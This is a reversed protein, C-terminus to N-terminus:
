LTPLESSTGIAIHPDGSPSMWALVADLEGAPLAVCGATYGSTTDDHFFVGSGIPNSTPPPNFNIVAFHQYAVTETWLAESDGGFPPTTACQVHVFQNYQATGPQEDWWDGCVLHHYAYAPNAAATSVGYMTSEFGYLGTPTSGDGESRHDELDAGTSPNYGVEARFPQAPQGPLTAPSWCGDAQRAWVALTAQTSGYYRGDVTILQQGGGTDAMLNPDAGMGSPNTPCAASGYYQADGFPYVQGYQDVLTYGSDDPTAGLGVVPFALPHGGLSGYFRADGFSFVGGDSAVLDYGRGDGSRAMAVVPQDLHVNGTSGYFRADGFSFVGGDSAVLWYGGGDSTAAMGVVPQDLHVNGTSGYFHADGFSFIGGDAGLLYYGGGDATSAVGVIPANLHVATLDGHYTAAGFASVQGSASVVLYGACGGVQVDAVAVAHEVPGGANAPCSTAAAASGGSLSIATTMLGVPVASIAMMLRALHARFFLGAM